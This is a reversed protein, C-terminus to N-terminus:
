NTMAAPEAPPKAVSGEKATKKEGILSKLFGGAKSSGDGIEIKTPKAATPKQIALRLVGDKYDAHMTEATVGEPLTFVQQFKGYRRGSGKGESKREGSVVLRNGTVEINLDDRSVGPIDFSLLYHDENEELDYAPSLATADYELPERASRPLSNFVTDIDRFFASWPNVDRDWYTTLM